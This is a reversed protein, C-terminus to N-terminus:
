THADVELCISVTEVQVRASSGRLKLSAKGGSAATQLNSMTDPIQQGTLKDKLLVEISRALYPRHMKWALVGRDVTVEGVKSTTASTPHPYLQHCGTLHHSGSAEDALAPSACGITIVSAMAIVAVIVNRRILIQM